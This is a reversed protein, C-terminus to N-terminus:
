LLWFLSLFLCSVLSLRFSLGLSLALRQLQGSSLSQFACNHFHQIGLLMQDRILDPQVLLDIEELLLLLGNADDDRTTLQRM